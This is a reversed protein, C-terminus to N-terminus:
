EIFTGRFTNRQDIYVAQKPIKTILKQTGRSPNKPLKKKCVIQQATNMKPFKTIARTFNPGFSMSYVGIM